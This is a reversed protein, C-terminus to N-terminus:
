RLLKGPNLLGQPDLKRQVAELMSLGVEGKEAGLYPAHDMGVGHQHSITGGHAIIVESAASKLKQWRHLTEAPDRAQRFIFTVYISAGDRYIHSLHAFALVREEKDTLGDQLATIIAETTTLV